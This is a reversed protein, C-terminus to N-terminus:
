YAMKFIIPVNYIVDVKRNGQKGPTILPLKNIVRIAEKELPKFQSRAVIESVRGSTNIKFQVDIRQIEGQDIAGSFKEADFNRSIFANVKKSMCEVRQKNTSFSECGPFIPAKEVTNSYHKKSTEPKNVNSVKPVKATLTETSATSTEAVDTVTNKVVKLENQITTLTKREPQQKIPEKPKPLDIVPKELRYSVFAPEPLYFDNDPVQKLTTSGISSEAVLFVLLMSVILGLQFFLSSNWPTNISKKDESKSYKEPNQKKSFKMDRTNLKTIIHFKICPNHWIFFAEM